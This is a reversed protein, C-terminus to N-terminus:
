GHGHDVNSESIANDKEEETIRELKSNSVGGGEIEAPAYHLIVKSKDRDIELYFLEWAAGQRTERLVSLKYYEAM